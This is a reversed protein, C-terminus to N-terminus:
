AHGLRGEAHGWRLYHYFASPIAGANIAAAVDPNAALYYAPNFNASPQRAPEFQGNTLYHALGSAFTHNAVAAAVDPNHALYYSEDFADISSQGAALGSNVFNAAPSQGTGDVLEMAAAANHTLTYSSNFYFSPDYGQYQGFRMFHELPSSFTGASVAAGVASYNNAYWAADFLLSPQRDEHAGYKMFHDFGSQFQGQGVAQAVDPNSKIYYAPDFFASPARGEFQGHQIYHAYGSSVTGATIAAAIDPYQTQYYRESFLPNASYYFNGLATAPMKNGATDAAINAALSVTYRGEDALDWSGGPAYIQFTATREPGNSTQDVSVLHAYQSYGNPGTVLVLSTSTLSSVSIAVDDTFKIQFQYTPAGVASPDTAILVASPPTAPDPTPTPLSSLTQFFYYASPQGSQTGSLTRLNWVYSDGPQLVGAAPTFSTATPDIQFSTFKALTQDYLNLQYGTIGTLANWTFTPTLTTLIPGPNASSGPAIIVPAPLTLAPTQFFFYASRPGTTTGSLARLFWTFKDGAHLTNAAMTYSTATPDLTYTFNATNTTDYISLQYGTIGTLANWTFTPTLNELVPGPTTGNGPGIAVPAPITPGAATQFYTYTSQPGATSGTYASVTWAFSHGAGLPTTVTYTTDPANITYYFSQAATIDHFGLHYSTAGTVANWSFIPSLSDIVNGPSTANGPAIVIPAAPTTGPQTQFYFYTSPPGSATGNLVRLNWVFKDGAALPASTPVTYSTVTPDTITTGHSTSNTTDYLNLQYGTIGTLANWTFTPTTTTLVPGPTTANGPAIIVPSPLTAAPTQFYFYTANAGNDSGNLGHITWAFKDSAHLTGSPVTFSTASAGLAYPYSTGLTVDKVTLLYGTIGSIANWTFTPSLSELVPGPSTANGPATLVPTAIGTNVPTQFFFYSGHSGVQTGSMGALFWVFKDGVPLDGSPVTFSTASADATYTHGYASSSMDYVSLQYGTIGTVANWTMTPTTTSLIPGPNTTNGPATIVPVPLTTTGVATALLHPTSSTDILAASLLTRSELSELASHVHGNRRSTRIRSTRNHSSALALSLKSM